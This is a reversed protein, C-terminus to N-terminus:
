YLGYVLNLFLVGSRLSCSAKGSSYISQLIGLLRRIASFLLYGSRNFRCTARFVEVVVATRYPLSSINNVSPLSGSPMLRDIEAQANKQIDHDLVM